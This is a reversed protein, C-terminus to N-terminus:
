RPFVLAAHHDDTVLIPLLGRRFFYLRFCVQKEQPIRTPTAAPEPCFSRFPSALPDNCFADSLWSRKNCQFCLSSPTRDKIKLVGERIRLESKRECPPDIDRGIIRPFVLRAGNRNTTSPPNMRHRNPPPTPSTQFYEYRVTLITHHPTTIGPLLPSSFLLSPYPPFSPPSHYFSPLPYILSM